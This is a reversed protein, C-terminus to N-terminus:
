ELESLEFWREGKSELLQMIQAIRQSKATIDTVSLNGSSLEEELTAKETELADIEATLTDLERRENFTLKREKVREPKKKDVKPASAEVRKAEEREQERAWERYETYSGPFGNIEGDGEFVLLGDVVKDMFFRDHSVVLVVGDFSQLYDELVNLTLIDLDNTPEDLIL